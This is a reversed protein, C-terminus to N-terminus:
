GHFNSEVKDVLEQLLIRTDLMTQHNNSGLGELASSVDLLAAQMQATRAMSQIRLTVNECLAETTEALVTIHDRIRGIKEPTDAPPNTIIISVQDYNVIFQQKFDFIRGMGSMKDFILEELDTPEGRSTAITQGKSHRLMVSCQVGFESISDVLQHALELYSMAVVAKRVFNLLVGSEGVSSLFSMAMDHLSNAEHALQSFKSNQSMLHEAHRLLLQSKVPKTVLYDGGADYAKLHEEMTQHATVFIIPIVFGMLRIQRCTDYGDLEPMSVDMLILSPKHSELMKLAEIGSACTIVDYQKAMLTRLLLRSTSDDDVIMVKTSAQHM